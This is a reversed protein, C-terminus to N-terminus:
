KNKTYKNSEPDLHVQLQGRQNCRKLTKLGYSGGQNKERRLLISTSSVQNDTRCLKEAQTESMEEWSTM